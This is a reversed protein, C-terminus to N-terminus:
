LFALILTAQCSLVGPIECIKKLRKELPVTAFWGGTATAPGSWFTGDAPLPPVGTCSSPDCDLSGSPSTSLKTQFSAVFLMTPVVATTSNVKDTPVCANVRVTVSGPPRLEVADVSM